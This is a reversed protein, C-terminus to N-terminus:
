VIMRSCFLVCAMSDSLFLPTCSEVQPSCLRRQEERVAHGAHEEAGPHDHLQRTDAAGAVVSHKRGISDATY